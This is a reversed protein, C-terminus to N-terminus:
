EKFLTISLYVDVNMTFLAGMVVIACGLLWQAVRDFGTLKRLASIESIEIEEKVSQGKM